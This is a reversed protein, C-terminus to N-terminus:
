CAGWLGRGARRADRGLRDFEKAHGTNPPVRLPTAYGGRLLDANVFRGDAYLYVLARGYRDRREADFRYTVRTGRPLLDETRDAAARGFCEAVPHVEPTDVGILRTRGLRELVVTDGDTVRAIRDGHEGGEPAPDADCAALALGAALIGLGLRRGSV